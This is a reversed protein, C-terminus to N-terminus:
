YEEPKKILAKLAAIDELTIEDKQFAAIADQVAKIGYSLILQLLAVVVNLDETKM